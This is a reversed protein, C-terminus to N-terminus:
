NCATLKFSQVQAHLRDRQMSNDLGSPLIFSDKTKMPLPPSTAQCCLMSLFNVFLVSWDYYGYYCSSHHSCVKDDIWHGIKRNTYKEHMMFHAKVNSVNLDPSYTMTIPTHTHTHTHAHAFVGIECPIECRTVTIFMDCMLNCSKSRSSFHARHISKHSKRWLLFFVFFFVIASSGSVGM